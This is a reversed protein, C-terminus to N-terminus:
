FPLFFSEIEARQEASLVINFRKELEPVDGISGGNTKVYELMEAYGPPTAAVAAPAAPAPKAQAEFASVAPNTAPPVVAQQAGQTAQWEASTKAKEQLFAPLKEFAAIHEANGALYERVDFLLTPNVAAPCSLGAMLKTISLIEARTSGSKSTKHVVQVQAPAGLLKSMDFEGAEDDTLPKGRWAGLTKRLNANEGMYYSFERSVVFPQPGNEEKFVHTANPLEFSLYVKPTNKAQGQYEDAIIGVYVM